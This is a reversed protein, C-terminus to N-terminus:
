SALFFIFLEMKRKVFAPPPSTYEKSIVPYAFLLAPPFERFPLIYRHRHYGFPNKDLLHAALFPLVAEHRYVLGAFAFGAFSDHHHQSSIINTPVRPCVCVVFINTPM